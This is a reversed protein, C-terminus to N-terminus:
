YQLTERHRQNHTTSGDEKERHGARKSVYLRRDGYKRKTGLAREMQIRRIGEGRDHQLHGARRM